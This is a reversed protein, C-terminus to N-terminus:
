PAPLFICIGGSGPQGAAFVADPCEANMDATVFTNENDYLCVIRPLAGNVDSLLVADANACNGAPAKDKRCDPPTKEANKPCGNDRAGGREASALTPALILGVALAAVLMILLIGTPKRM